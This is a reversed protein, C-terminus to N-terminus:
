SKKMKIFKHAKRQAAKRKGRLTKKAQLQEPPDPPVLGDTIKYYLITSDSAVIALTLSPCEVSPHKIHDIYQKMQAINLEADNGIPLMLHAQGDRESEQATLFIMKLESCPHLSVKAWQKAECLDLYVLMAQLAQDSNNFGHSMMEKYKPHSLLWNAEGAAVGVDGM